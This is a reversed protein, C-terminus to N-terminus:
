ANWRGGHLDLTRFGPESLGAGALTGTAWAADPWLVAPQVRASPRLPGTAILLGATLLLRPM